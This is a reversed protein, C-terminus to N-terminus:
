APTASRWGSGVWPLKKQDKLKPDLRRLYASVQGTHHQIHRINYIHMEARSFKRFGSPGELVKASEAALTKKAKRRCIDVYELTGSKNM